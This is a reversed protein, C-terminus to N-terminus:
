ADLLGIEGLMRLLERIGPHDPDLELEERLAARIRAISVPGDVSLEAILDAVVAAVPPLVHTQWTAPDFM